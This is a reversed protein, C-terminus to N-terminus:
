ESPRRSRVRSPPHAQRSAEHQQAESTTESIANSNVTLRATRAVVEDVLHGVALHVDLDIQDVDSESFSVDVKKFFLSIVKLSHFSYSCDMFSIGTHFFSMVLLLAYTEMLTKALIEFIFTM